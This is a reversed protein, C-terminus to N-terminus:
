QWANQHYSCARGDECFVISPLSKVYKPMWNQRGKADSCALYLTRTAGSMWMDECAELLPDRLRRCQHHQFDTIPQIDKGIALGLHILRIFRQAVPAQLLAAILVVLVLSIRLFAVM